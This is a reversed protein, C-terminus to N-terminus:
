HERLSERDTGFPKLNTHRVYQVLVGKILKHFFIFTGQVKLVERREDNILVIQRNEPYVVLLM